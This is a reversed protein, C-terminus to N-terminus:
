LMTAIKMQCSFQLCLQELTPIHLLSENTDDLRNNVSRKRLTM